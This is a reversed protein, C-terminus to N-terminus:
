KAYEALACAYQGDTVCLYIYIAFRLAAHLSRSQLM